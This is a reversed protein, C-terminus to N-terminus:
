KSPEGPPTLVHEENKHAAAAAEAQAQHIKPGLDYTVKLDKCSGVPRGDRTALQWKANQLSRQAADDLLPYGSSTKVSSKVRGDVDICAHVVVVGEQMLRKAEAPYFDEATSPAVMKARVVPVSDAAQVVVTSLALVASAALLGVKSM